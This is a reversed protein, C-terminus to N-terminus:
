IKNKLWAPMNEDSKQWKEVMRKSNDWSSEKGDFVKRRNCKYKVVEEGEQRYENCYYNQKGQGKWEQTRYILM